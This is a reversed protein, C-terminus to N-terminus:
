YETDRRWGLSEIGPGLKHEKRIGVYQRKWEWSEDIEYECHQDNGSENVMSSIDSIGKSHFMSRGVGVNDGHTDVRWCQHDNNSVQGGTQMKHFLIPAIERVLDGRM